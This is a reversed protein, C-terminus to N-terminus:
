LNSCILGLFRSTKTFSKWHPGVLLSDHWQLVVVSGTTYIILVVLSCFPSHILSFISWAPTFLLPWFSCRSIWQSRPM